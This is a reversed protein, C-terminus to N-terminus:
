SNIQERYDYIEKLYMDDSTGRHIGRDQLKPLMSVLHKFQANYEDYTSIYNKWNETIFKKYKNGYKIKIGMERCLKIIKSYSDLLDKQNLKVMKEFRLYCTHESAIYINFQNYEFNVNLEPRSLYEEDLQKKDM